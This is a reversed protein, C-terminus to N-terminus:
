IQKDSEIVKKGKEQPIIQLDSKINNDKLKCDNLEYLLLTLATLESHPQHGVAINHDALEYVWGPVKESGVIILLNSATNLERIKEKYNLGYMTLHVVVYGKSKKSVVLKKANSVYEISVAHGWKEQLKAISKEFKEDKDGSYYIKANPYLVRVSLALHTTIRKDREKRHNLRLIEIM